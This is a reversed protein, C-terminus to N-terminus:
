APQLVYTKGNAVAPVGPWIHYEVLNTDEGGVNPDPNIGVARACAISIEGLRNRPGIDGVVAKVELGTRRYKVLAQCGLVIDKTALQVQPPVVIYCETDADLDPKLSTEKQHFKDGHAQGKGDDDIRGKAVYMLRGDDYEYVICHEISIKDGNFLLPTAPM